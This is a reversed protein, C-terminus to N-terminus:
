AALDAEIQAISDRLEAAKEFELNESAEEMERTLQAVLDRKQDDTLGALRDPEPAVGLLAGVEDVFRVAAGLADLADAQSLEIGEYDADERKSAIERLQRAVGAEIRETRVYLRGFESAVGSHTKPESGAANVAARAAYFMGYYARSVADLYLGARVLVRAAALARRAETFSPATM